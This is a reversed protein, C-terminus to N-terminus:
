RQRMVLALRDVTGNMVVDDDAAATADAAVISIVDVDRVNWVVPREEFITLKMTFIM